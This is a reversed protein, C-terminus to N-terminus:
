FFASAAGTPVVGDSRGCCPPHAIDVIGRKRCRDVENQLSEQSHKLFLKGVVTLSEGGGLSAWAWGLEV